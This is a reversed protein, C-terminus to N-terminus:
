SNDTIRENTLWKEVAPIDQLADIDAPYEDLVVPVVNKGLCGWPPEGSPPLHGATLRIVWINHLLTFSPPVSQRNSTVTSPLFPFHSVLYGSTDLAKQRYPHSGLERRVPVVASANSDNDLLELCSDILEPSVAPANAHQLVLADAICGRDRIEGLAHELVHCGLAKSTALHKPREISEYGYKSSIELLEHSDSSAFLRSLKRSSSGARAVWEVCPFGAITRLNKNELTSGRRGIILGISTGM